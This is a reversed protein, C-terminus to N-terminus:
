GFNLSDGLKATWTIRADGEEMEYLKNPHRIKRVSFPFLAGKLPKLVEEKWHGGGKVVAWLLHEVKKIYEERTVPQDTTLLLTSLYRGDSIQVELLHRTLGDLLQFTALGAQRPRNEILKFNSQTVNPLEFYLMTLRWGNIRALERAVEEFLKLGGNNDHNSSQIYGYEVPKLQSGKSPDGLCGAITEETEFPRVSKRDGGATSQSSNYVVETEPEVAFDFPVSRVDVFRNHGGTGSDEEQEDIELNAPTPISVNSGSNQSPEPSVPEKKAPHFIWTKSGITPLNSFGVIERIFVTNGRIPGSYKLVVGALEPAVMDFIFRRYNAGTANNQQTVMRQYVSNFLKRSQGHRLMWVLNKRCHPDDILYLPADAKFKIAAQGSLPQNEQVLALGNLGSPTLLHKAVVKKTVLLARALEIVPLVYEKGWQSIVFANQQCLERESFLPWLTSPIATGAPETRWFSVPPLTVDFIRDAAAPLVVGDEFQQGVRLDPLAELRFSHSSLRESESKLWVAVYWGQDPKFFLNGLYVLTYRGKPLHRYRAPKLSSM